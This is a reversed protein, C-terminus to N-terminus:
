LAPVELTASTREVVHGGWCALDAAYTGMFNGRAYNDYGIAVNVKHSQAKNMGFLARKDDGHTLHTARGIRLPTLGRLANLRLHLDQDEYGWGQLQSNMGGISLFDEKRLVVQGYGVTSNDDFYLREHEFRIVRGDRCTFETHQSMGVIYSPTAPRGEKEAVREVTVYHEASVLARAACLFGAGLIIDADLLFLVHGRSLHLGVNQALCKNFEPVDLDIQRVGPCASGAAAAALARPDGACNVVLVEAGASEFEARNMALTLELEPRARWAIIVSVAPTDSKEREM